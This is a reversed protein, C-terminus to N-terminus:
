MRVDGGDHLAYVGYLGHEFFAAELRDLHDLLEFM